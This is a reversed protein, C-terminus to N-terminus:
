VPSTGREAVALNVLKRPVVLEKLVERGESM